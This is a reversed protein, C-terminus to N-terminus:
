VSQRPGLIAPALAVVFLGMAAMWFAGSVLMAAVYHDMAIVSGVWRIMVAAAMLGFAAVVPRSAVLPRGSHGLIARSMVALTMGGVAGIGLVHLAAVESGIGFQAVGWLVYGLGLWAFGLHLAWLIPQSLTWGSRWGSLRALQAGGAAVAVVGAVATLGFGAVLVVLLVAAGIGIIELPKRTIPHRELRNARKMANRTFAPIVRGGLVAIVACATLLGVRIGTEAGPGMGGVWELHVMLNGIWFLSLLALLMLNQPKPRGMLQGLVQAALVPVFALDIVAVLWPALAGSWWIALRGALWLGWLVAIFWPQAPKAGTWNPVATLFFGGIAASTYGFVMEHAHWLHPTPAYPTAGGLGSFALNALWQEWVLVALVAFVAASLFFIRFGDGFLRKFTEIM